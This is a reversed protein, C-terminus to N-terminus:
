DAHASARLDELSGHKQLPYFCTFRVGLEENAPHSLSVCTHGLRRRRRRRRSLEVVVHRLQM